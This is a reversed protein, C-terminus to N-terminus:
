WGSAEANHNSGRSQHSTSRSPNIVICNNQATLLTQIWLKCETRKTVQTAWQVWYIGMEKPMETLSKDDEIHQRRGVEGEAVEGVGKLQTM